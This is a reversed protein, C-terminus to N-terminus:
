RSDAGSSSRLKRAEEVVYEKLFQLNENEPDMKLAKEVVLLAKGDYGKGLLYRVYTQYLRFDYPFAEIAKEMTAQARAEEGLEMQTYVLYLYTDRDAKFRVAKSLEVYADGYKRRNFLEVGLTKHEEFRKALEAASLDADEMLAIIRGDPAPADLVSKLIVLNSVRADKAVTAGLYNARVALQKEAAINLDNGHINNRDLALEGSLYALGTKNNTLTSGALVGEGGSVVVARDWGSCDVDTLEFAGGSLILGDGGTGKADIAEALLRGRSDIATRCGAFSAHDIKAVGEDLIAIGDWKEGSLVVPAEKAGKIVLEGRVDLRAGEAFTLRTGRMVTLVKGAPVVAVGDVRYKGTILSGSLDGSIALEDFRPMVVATPKGPTSLNRAKDVARIRYYYTRGQEVEGDVYTADRIAAVESFEGVPSDGREVLFAVVEEGKPLMWSMHVGDDQAKFTEKEPKEPLVGDLTLVAEAETWEREAGNTRAVRVTLLQDKAMDGERVVYFGEYEGEGVAKLKINKKFDGIDFSAVLDKEAFVKVAVKQGAGFIGVDVNSDVLMIEPLTQGKTCDPLVQAMKWGWDYAVHRFQKKPSDSLLAGVVTGILGVVSTPISVDRKESTETWTGIKRGGADYMTAGASLMFDEMAAINVMAWGHIDLYVLGQTGLLKCLEAPKMDKWQPNELLKRDVVSAVMPQYGKGALHNHLVSRAMAGVFVGDEPDADDGRVDKLNIIAPLVAVVQPVDQEIAYAGPGKAKKGAVCAALVMGAVLIVIINRVVGVNRM